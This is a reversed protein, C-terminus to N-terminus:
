SLCKLCPRIRKCALPMHISTSGIFHILFSGTHLFQVKRQSVALFRNSPQQWLLSAILFSVPCESDATTVRPINQRPEQPFSVHYFYFCVCVFYFQCDRFHCVNFNTISSSIVLSGCTLPLVSFQFSVGSKQFIILEFIDSLIFCM